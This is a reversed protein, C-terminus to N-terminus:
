VADQPLNLDRGRTEPAFFTTILGIGAMVVFYGAVPWWHGFGTLLATAILPATGGSLISGLEKAFAMKSYRNKVGFLEVGYAAQVGFIGLSAISMGVVIVAIIIAPDRSDLLWFAPFAYLVLLLCFYRYTIRRGFRDSLWGALPIVLFGCLSAIMVALAPISKDVMLVKAVYGVIFGQCLYSPGNEGIRLGLMVWFAKTRQLYSRNDPAAAQELLRQHNQQLEREFVPTERVHRRLYLAIGAILVSALFPIRWGWSMLDEKDLQLVLLWVLSALLTGSNSGIAIISAVLGRRQAPAYEALMVAGGSLEAGAGFGQAFRLIVLCAPAWIGIQAYPPILGILTTSLGMLAVTTILVVRRGKRDGIWGFVLAGIPRAIFGVSYTAFSALLAVLPTAEPFFVDGFVMGAALGYLAFDVYEMATGLWCSFTARWFQSRGERTALREDAALAEDHTQSPAITSESM